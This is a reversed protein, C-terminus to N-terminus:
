SEMMKKPIDMNEIIDFMEYLVMSQKIRIPFLREIDVQYSLKKLRIISEDLNLDVKEQINYTKDM